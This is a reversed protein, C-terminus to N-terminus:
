KGRAAFRWCLSVELACWFEIVLLHCSTIVHQEIVVRRTCTRGGRGGWEGVGERWEVEKEGGERERGAGRKVEGSEVEFGREQRGRERVGGKEFEKGRQSRGERCAGTELQQRGFKM